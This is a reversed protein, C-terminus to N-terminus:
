RRPRSRRRRWRPGRGPRWARGCAPPARTPSRPRAARDRDGRGVLHEGREAHALAVRQQQVAARARDALRRDLEGAPEARRDDRGRALGVVRAHAFEPRDRDRVARAEDVAHTGDSGGTDVDCEIGRAGILRDLHRLLEDGVGLADARDHEARAGGLEADARPAASVRDREGGFLLLQADVGHRQRGLEGRVALEVDLDGRAVREGLRGVRVPLALAPPRRPLIM